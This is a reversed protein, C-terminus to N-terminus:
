WGKISEESDKDLKGDKGVVRCVWTKTVRALGGSMVVVRWVRTKQNLSFLCQRHGALFEGKLSCLGLYYM